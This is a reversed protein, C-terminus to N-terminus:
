FFGLLTLGADAWRGATTVAARLEWRPALTLSSAIQTRLNTRRDGIAYYAIRANLLFRLRAAADALLIGEGGGGVRYRKNAAFAPGAGLDTEALAMALFRRGPGFRVAAGGGTVLGAYLCRWGKRGSESRDCDLERANDLGFWVKWSMSHVWRELPAASVIDVLDFHQVGLERKQDAFRLALNFMVLQADPQYGGHPDLYDHLAGRVALTQYPGSQNSGGGGVGLRLTAHGGEPADVGPKVVMTQPPQGLRGRALLLRRERNKFPLTQEAELGERYRLYDDSSDLVHAQRAPPMGQLVAVPLPQSLEARSLVEAATLEQSSLDAKRARLVSLLSSRPARHTVLGAQALVVRLTDVPVVRAGFGDVLHLSPRAVELLALLQYSCNRTFFFYSFYTNRTEWVHRVLRDVETPTLSLDYEWLDRSEMNSYEQVKMYYPHVYYLGRFGGSVGRVAYVLGNTTNVDAAFNVVYDLLPNGEGTARALRFFTHGYMSAPSNIFASAYVLTAAQAAMGQRWTEFTPCPVDWADGVHPALEAKLWQWRLPFRCQAHAMDPAATAEVGPALVGPALAVPTVGTPAPAFLARISAELEADPSTQGGRGALFFGEGEAESKWGGFATARYHLLVQWTRSAALKKARGANVLAAVDPPVRGPQAHAATAALVIAFWLTLFIGGFLCFGTFRGM